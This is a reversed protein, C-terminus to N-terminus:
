SSPSIGEGAVQVTMNVNGENPASDSHFSGGRHGRNGPIVYNAVLLDTDQVITRIPGDAAKRHDPSLLIARECLSEALALDHTALVLTRPAFASETLLWIIRQKFYASLGPSLGDVIFVEPHGLLAAAISVIKKEGGSLEAFSRDLLDEIELSACLSQFDDKSTVLPVDVITGGYILDDLVTPRFLQTDPHPGSCAIRSRRDKRRRGKGPPFSQGFIQVRGATAALQGQLIKLLTTKGSRTAGLIAVREGERISLDVECLAVVGNGYRYSAQELEFLSRLTMM